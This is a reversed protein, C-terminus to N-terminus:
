CFSKSTVFERAELLGAAVSIVANGIADRARRVRETFDSVCKLTELGPGHLKELTLREVDAQRLVMMRATRNSFLDGAVLRVAEQLQEQFPSRQMDFFLSEIRKWNVGGYLEAQLADDPRKPFPFAKERSIKRLTESFQRGTMQHASVSPDSVSVSPDHASAQVTEPQPNCREQRSSRAKMDPRADKKTVDNRAFPAYKESKPSSRWAPRRPLREEVMRYEVTLNRGGGPNGVVELVGLIKLKALGYQVFRKSSSLRWAMYEVSPYISSGDDNAIDALSAALPKLKRPLDSKWVEGSLRGSMSQSVTAAATQM